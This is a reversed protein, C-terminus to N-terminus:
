KKLNTVVKEKLSEFYGKEKPNVSILSDLVMKMEALSGISLKNINNRTCNHLIHEYRSIPSSKIDILSSMIEVLNKNKYHNVFRILNKGDKESGM